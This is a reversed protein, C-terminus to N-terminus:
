GADTYHRELTIRQKIVLASAGGSSQMSVDISTGVALGKWSVAEVVEVLHAPLVLGPMSPESIPYLPISLDIRAQEGRDSLVNRGREAAVDHTTILPDSVLDARIDGASGTRIIPDSVGVQDGSVLVYNYVPQSVVTLSDELIIDDLIQKDPATVGWAWPSVPYRPVVRLRMDWPHSQVVAGSAEAAKRVAAIPTLGQYAWAGAPVLWTLTDWDLTFGTLDLEAEALSQAQMDEDSVASRKGADLLATQSRGSVTVRPGPFKRTRNHSEIIATWVHGNLNIEVAKPGDGDPLLYALAAADALTMSVAWFADDITSSLSIASVPIPTREPLRVVAATNLVIYRRPRPWAFYCAAPGFPVPVQDGRFTLQPCTFNLTVRDGRPPVYVPPDVPTPPEIGPSRVRWRVRQAYGWPLVWRAIVDPPATWPIQASASARPPVAWPLSAAVDIRPPAAWPLEASAHQRPPVGWPMAAAGIYRPLSIWASRVPRSNLRPAASWPLVARSALTPLSGWTTIVRGAKHPAQSWPLMARRKLSVTVGYSSQVQRLRRPTLMWPLSGARGVWRVPIPIPEDGQYDKGSRYATSKRYASM